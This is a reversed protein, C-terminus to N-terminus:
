RGRTAGKGAAAPRRWDRWLVIVRGLQVHQRKIGYQGAYRESFLPVARTADKVGVARWGAIGLTVHHDGWRLELRGLRITHHKM